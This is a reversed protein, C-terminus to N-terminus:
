PSRSPGTAAAGGPARRRHLPSAGRVLNTGGLAGRAAMPGPEGSGGRRVERCIFAGRGPGRVEVRRRGALARGERPVPRPAPPHTTDGRRAEAGEGVTGVTAAAM